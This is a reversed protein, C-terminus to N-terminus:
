PSADNQALKRRASARLAGLLDAHSLPINSSVNADHIRKRVLLEAPYHFRHGRDRARALWDMDAGSAYAPEFNGVLEFVRRHILAVSLLPSELERDLSERRFGPPASCGPELFRRVRGFCIDADAFEELYDLQAALRRPLWIDDAELFAIREAKADLLGRNIAAGYGKALDVIWRVNAFSKAVTETEDTSGGDVVLIELPLVDGSMVSEIAQKLFRAANLTPIIVSVDATKV